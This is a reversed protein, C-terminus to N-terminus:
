LDFMCGTVTKGTVTITRLARAAEEFNQEPRALALASALRSQPAFAGPCREPAAYHTACQYYRRGRVRLSRM